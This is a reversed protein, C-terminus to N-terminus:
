SGSSRATVLTAYYRKTYHRLTWFFQVETHSPGEDSAGDVHVCEICKRAGNTPNFFAPKLEKISELMEIDSSHQAKKKPFVGSAKVVGACLEKTTETKSFNYSTTQLTSPYKNVYDTHTTLVDKVTPTKHLRHTTM